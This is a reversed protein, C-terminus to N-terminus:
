EGAAPPAPDVPSYGVNIQVNGQRDGQHGYASVSVNSAEPVTALLEQIAARAIEGQQQGDPIFAGKITESAQEPSGSASISFSM